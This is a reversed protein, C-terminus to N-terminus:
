SSQLLKIVMFQKKMESVLTCILLWLRTKDTRANLLHVLIDRWAGLVEVIHVM